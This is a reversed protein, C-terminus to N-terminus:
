CLGDPGRRAEEANWRTGRRKDKLIHLRLTFRDFAARRISGEARVTAFSFIPSANDPRRGLLLLVAHHHRCLAALRVEAARSLSARGAPRSGRGTGADGRDLVILGFAGSRLLHETVRAGELLGDVRAIPLAELDVGCDHLDPAYFLSDGAAIWAAPEGKAQAEHILRAAATLGAPAPRISARQVPLEGSSIEVVGGALNALSWPLPAPETGRGREGPAIRAPHESEDPFASPLPIRLLPEM